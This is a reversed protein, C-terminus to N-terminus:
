LKNLLYYYPKYKKDEYKNIKERVQLFSNTKNYLKENNHFNLYNQDIKIDCFKLIRKVEYEKNNTLKDLKVNLIKNPYKKNFYDIVKKYINVYNMITEIKHSWSLEPLMSQYIAIVSDNFDRYTHIFKAEPFFKLIIDINFFNELSKDLFKKKEFCDYKEILNSQFKNSNLLLKYKKFNFDKSYIIEAIQQFISINIGHFEGYSVLDSDNHVLITEVLSSGSRPLGVIFLHKENNINEIKQPEGDFEIKDFYNSIIKNYYFDSQNNFNFNSKYCKDHYLNLYEIEKIINGRRKEYKSLIFNIYSKDLISISSDRVFETLKKYNDNNINNDDLFFLSFYAKVNKPSISLVQLLKNKAENIKGLSQLSLALNFLINVDNPKIENCKKFFYNSKYINNLEFFIKGMQFNGKLHNPNKDLFKNLFYIAKKYKKKFILEKITDIAFM